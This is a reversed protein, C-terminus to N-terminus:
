ALAPGGGRRRVPDLVGSTAVRLYPRFARRAQAARVAGFRDPDDDVLATGYARLTGNITHWDCGLENAVEKM